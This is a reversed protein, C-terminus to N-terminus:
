YAGDCVEVQHLGTTVNVRYEHGLPRIKSGHELDIHLSGATVIGYEGTSLRVRSGVTLQQTSLNGNSYKVFLTAFWRSVKM